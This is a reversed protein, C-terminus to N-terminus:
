SEREGFSTAHSVQHALAVLEALYGDVAARATVTGPHRFTLWIGEHSRNIWLYTEHSDDSGSALLRVGRSAWFHSGPISRIDSYSVMFRDRLQAGLLDMARSFPVRATQKARTIELKAAGMIESFGGAARFSVPSMGVYWGFSNRWRWDHRTHIPTVTHFEQKNALARGVMALCAFIGAMANGGDVRCARDFERAAAADFLLIRGSRQAAGKSTGLSLPFDPLQGANAAILERWHIIAPHDVTLGAMLTRESEAYDLHSHVIPLRPAVGEIAATYLKCIEHPVLALSYGDTLFHDCALVVTTSGPRSVTVLVYAPWQLPSTDADFLEEMRRVLESTNAYDGVETGNLAAAGPGVTFRQIASGEQIVLSRLAEHRDIWNLVARTFAPPDFAGSQEFAVALWTPRGDGVCDLHEEQAHSARRSDPRWRGPDPVDIRWATLRGPQVALKDIDM